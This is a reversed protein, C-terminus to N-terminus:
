VFKLGQLWNLKEENKYFINKSMVIIKWLGIVYIYFNLLVFLIIKKLTVLKYHQSALCNQECWPCAIWEARLYAETKPAVYKRENLVRPSHTRLVSARMCASDLAAHINKMIKESEKLM